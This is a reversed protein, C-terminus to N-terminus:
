ETLYLDGACKDFGEPVNITTGVAYWNDLLPGQTFYRLKDQGDGLQISRELKGERKWQRLTAIFRLLHTHAEIKCETSSDMDNVDKVHCFIFVTWEATTEKTGISGELYVEIGVLPSKLNGMSRMMEDVTQVSNMRFFRRNDSVVDHQMPKYKSAWEEVIKDFRIM